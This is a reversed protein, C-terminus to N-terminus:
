SLGVLKGGFTNLSTTLTKGFQKTAIFPVEVAANLVNSFGEVGGIFLHAIRNQTAADNGYKEYEQATDVVPKPNFIRAVFEQLTGYKNDLQLPASEKSQLELVARTRGSDPFGPSIAKLCGCEDLLLVCYKWKNRVTYLQGNLLM